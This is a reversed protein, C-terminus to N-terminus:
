YRINIRLVFSYRGGVRAVSNCADVWIPCVTCLNMQRVWLERGFLNMISYKQCLSFLSFLSIHIEHASDHYMINENQTSMIARQQLNYYIPQYLFLFPPARIKKDYTIIDFILHVSFFYILSLFNSQVFSFHITIFSYVFEFVFVYRIAKSFNWQFKNRSALLSSVSLFNM